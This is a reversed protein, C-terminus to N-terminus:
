QHCDPRNDEQESSSNSRFEIKMLLQSEESSLRVETVQTDSVQSTVRTSLYELVRTSLDRM